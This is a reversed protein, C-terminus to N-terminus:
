NNPKKRWDNKTPNTYPPRVCMTLHKIIEGEKNKMPVQMLCTYMVRGKLYHKILMKTIKRREKYTEYDENEARHSYINIKDFIKDEM